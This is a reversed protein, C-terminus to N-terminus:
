FFFLPRIDYILPNYCSSEPHSKENGGVLFESGFLTSFVTAPGLGFHRPAIKGFFTDHYFRWFREAAVGFFAASDGNNPGIAAADRRVLVEGLVVCSDVFPSPGLAQWDLAWRRIMQGFDEVFRQREFFQDHGFKIGRREPPVFVLAQEPFGPESLLLEKAPDVNIFQKLVRRGPVFNDVLSHHVLGSKFTLSWGLEM